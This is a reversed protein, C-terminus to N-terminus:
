DASKNKDFMKKLCIEMIKINRNIVLRNYKELDLVKILTWGLENKYVLNDNM